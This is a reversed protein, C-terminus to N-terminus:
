KNKYEKIKENIKDLGNKIKYNNRLCLLLAVNLLILISLVFNFSTLYPFLTKYDYLSILLSIIALIFDITLLRYSKELKGDNRYKIANFIEANILIQSIGIIVPFLLSIGFNGLVSCILWYLCIFFIFTTVYRLFTYRRITLTNIIQNNLKKKDLKNM